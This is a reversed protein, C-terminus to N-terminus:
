GTLLNILATNDDTAGGISNLDLYFILRKDREVEGSYLHGRLM